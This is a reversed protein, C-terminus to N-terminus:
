CLPRKGSRMRDSVFRSVPNLILEQLSGYTFGSSQSKKVQEETEREGRGM